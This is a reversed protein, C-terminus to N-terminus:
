RRGLAFGSVRAQSIVPAALSSDVITLDIYYGNGDLQVRYSTQAVAGWTGAGWTTGVGGWSGGASAPLVQSDSLSDTVWSVTTAIAGNLQALVYGFRWAKATHPDECYLRHCQLAMAYSTGGTGDSLMNDVFVNPRDCESVFGNADGRLVIPFGTANNTEFLCQTEPSEYGDGWPGAWAQLITHYVYVGFGPIQIWLERTSRNLVTRINAINAASMQPLIVTLPDPTEPTNVPEVAQESARYLGKVSVFYVLNDVRALSFAALTGVDGSIGAPTVSVDSQGYGTL